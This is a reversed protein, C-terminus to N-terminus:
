AGPWVRVGILLPHLWFVFAVYVALGAVLSVIDGMGFGAKPPDVAGPRRKLSIRAAVGWALFGGFLLISGLDGNSILHATAWIKVALLMPHKVTSKIAGVPAYAAVLLVFIPLNLLLALHGLWFPPNWVPIYGAARYAAYGQVILVLGVLAVLSYAGKFGNEGLRSVLVGRPGRLMTFVHTGLFVLLGLLLLTM